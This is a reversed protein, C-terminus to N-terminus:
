LQISANIFFNRGKQLIHNWDSYTTYSRDFLNEVGARLTLAKSALHTDWNAHIHCVGYGATPTEGYKESYNSHRAAFTFGLEASVAKHSFQLAPRCTLPAILPLKAGTSEEGYAYSGDVHLTLWELTKWDLNASLNAIKASNLNRYIKVGAAGLTMASLRTEPTGIIYNKFLFLNGEVGVSLREGKWAANANVEFAREDKLNPNGIYDYRDFTNNIFYGYSETVVPTRSGYGVGAGLKLGNNDYTYGASVHGQGQTKDRKMGTFYITLANYGEDSGIRRYQGSAKASLHLTHHAALSIDDSLSLGTNFTNVDPWTLMYMPAGGDPLMTMDAYQNNYYFDYNLQYEHRGRLGQLLSYLGATSSKGPMDMHIVVDPRHTDDMNHTIHNYYVKTEWRSFLGELHERRYSLSTIIGEAEKVDMRLAPYGVNTALDYIATAEIINNEKPQWGVNAFANIKTFQSYLVEEGGGSKYNDAHRRFLGFNTYFKHSSIAADAGYVQLWGNSEVGGLLNCVFPDSDFGVKRLKLDLSGGINGSAQPNGDLGSNLSIRQLNGSEVYSTVPDMRDTCASFIKMGDITTSLRETQMNNVVPEWAYGGRKIMNVKQLHQLHEDISALGGKGVASQKHASSSIVIEDLALERSISDNQSFVPLSALLGGACLM